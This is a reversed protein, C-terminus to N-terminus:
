RWGVYTGTTATMVKTPSFDLKQGATMAYTQSVGEKGQVVLNGATLCYISRFGELVTADLPVIALQIAPSRRTNPAVM